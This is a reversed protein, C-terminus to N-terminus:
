IYNTIINYFMYCSQIKIIFHSECECEGHSASFPIIYKMQTINCQEKDFKLVSVNGIPDGVYRNIVYDNYGQVITCISFMTISKIM